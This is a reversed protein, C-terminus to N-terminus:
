DSLVRVTPWSGASAGRTLTSCLGCRPHRSCLNCTVQRQEGVAMAAARRSVSSFACFLQCGIDKHLRLDQVYLDYMAPNVQAAALAPNYLLEEQGAPQLHQGGEYVVYGFGYQM